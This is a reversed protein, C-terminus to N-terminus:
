YWKLSRQLFYCVFMVCQCSNSWVQIMILYSKYVVWNKLSLRWFLKYRNYNLNRQVKSLAFPNNLIDTRQPPSFHPPSPPIWQFAFLFSSPCPSLPPPPGLMHTRESKFSISLNEFHLKITIIWNKRNIIIVTHFILCVMM